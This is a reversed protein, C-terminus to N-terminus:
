QLWHSLASWARCFLSSDLRNPHPEDAAPVAIHREYLHYSAHSLMARAGADLTDTGFELAPEPARLM